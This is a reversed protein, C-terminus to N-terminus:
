EAQNWKESAIKKWSNVGTLKAQVHTRGRPRSEFCGLFTKVFHATRYTFHNRWVLDLVDQVVDPQGHASNIESEAVARRNARRIALNQDRQIRFVFRGRLVHAGQALFQMAIKRVHFKIKRSRINNTLNQVKSNRRRDVDLDSPAIWFSVLNCIFDFRADGLNRAGHVNVHM